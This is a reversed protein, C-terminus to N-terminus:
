PQTPQPEAALVTPPQPVSLLQSGQARGARTRMRLRRLAQQVGAGTEQQVGAGAGHQVGAGTEHQAVGAGLQPVTAEVSQQVGVVRVRKIARRLLLQEVGTLVAHPVGTLLSQPQV